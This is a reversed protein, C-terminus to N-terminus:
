SYTNLGHTHALWCCEADSNQLITSVLLKPDGTRQAYKIFLWRIRCSDDLGGAYGIPKVFDSLMGFM